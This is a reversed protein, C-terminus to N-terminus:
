HGVKAIALKILGLVFGIGLMVFSVQAFVTLETGYTIVGQGDVSHELFLGKFFDVFGTSLGQFLGNFIATFIQVISSIM